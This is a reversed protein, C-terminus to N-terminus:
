RAEEGAHAALADDVGSEYDGLFRPDPQFVVTGLARVSAPVERAWGYVTAFARESMSSGGVGVTDIGAARCLRVARPLHFEQTLVTAEEVGFVEKARACSDWTSFGAHDGVVRDEPIGADVLYDRMTDTENYHEVGNDGTVLVAQVSGAEYLEVALDLRQALLYSPLGDPRVGAGLVIAVPRDPVTEATHRQDGTSALMWVFPVCALILASVALLALLRHRRPLAGSSGEAADNEPVRDESAPDVDPNHSESTTM